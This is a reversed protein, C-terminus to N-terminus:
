SGSEREATLENIFEVTIEDLSDVIADAETLSNRPYTHTIAITRMGAARASQLGWHSDEIAVCAAPPVGHLEAARLYPDPEPKTRDTDGASVIFRFAELLGAGRLMLEIEDRLAGSAIGLPWVAGLRGACPVAGPYLVNRSSVLHQFRRSKEEILMEIEEDGLLLKNDAAIQQLAPRRPRTSARLHRCISETRSLIEQYVRLHFARTPRVRRLRVIAQIVMTKLVVRASPMLVFCSVLVVFKSHRRTAKTVKIPATPGHRLHPSLRWGAPDYKM